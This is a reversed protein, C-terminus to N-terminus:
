RVTNVRTTPMPPDDRVPMVGHLHEMSKDKGGLGAVKEVAACLREVGSNGRHKALSARLDDRVANRNDLEHKAITDDAEQRSRQASEYQDKSVM